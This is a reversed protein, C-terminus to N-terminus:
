PVPRFAGKPVCIEFRAGRGHSGTEHITIGTIGLIERALFLGFGTNKGYGKQFLKSKLDLPIGAGNDEFIIALGSKTTECRIEIATVHEGHRVANDFLNFFVSSLMPDAYIEFLYCTCTVHINKPKTARVIDGLRQWAPAQEGLEQYTRTFEIQRQIMHASNEIKFLFDNIAQPPQSMMALQTYGLLNTLQNAVDHRTISNLLNLKKSTERIALESRKLDSIDRATGVFFLISGTDDAVPSINSVQVRTSGDAHFIRYEIGSGSKKLSEVGTFYSECAALDDPHIFSRYSKGILDSPLYGLLRTVSPSVFTFIGDRDLTYIIDHSNEVLTRYRSESTRLARELSKRGSIDRCLTIIRSEKKEHVVAADVEIPTIRGDPGTYDVEFGHIYGDHVCQRVAAANRERDHEATWELVRRGLIDALGSRGTLRVYEPNADLVRGGEDLIVYGTGTVEVLMRYKEENELLAEEAKKRDSIDLIVGRFGVLNGSRFVPAPYILVPLRSGDSRLATYEHNDVPEGRLINKINQRVREHESPEIYDLANIGAELAQETVRLTTLAHRNAYTIRLQMDMEFIMQPLMEALERYKAESDRIRQESRALEDFQSQLEESSAALQENAARAKEEARRHDTIDVAFGGILPAKNERDIRFKYTEFIREDGNKVKLTEFTKRYGEKLTQLDDAIMKAAAERPFIDRVSKGIWTHAGFSDMMQRNVFLNISEEDKIFATVPLHDMFAAFRGESERLNEEAQKRETIDRVIGLLAPEGLYIIRDIFFEGDRVEGNKTLIRATFVPPVPDGSIRQKGSDQLRARDEPYILDMVGKEMLEDHTYGTLESARHNVFLFRNGRYIYITDHSNEVVVQYKEDGAQLDKEAKKLETIDRISEIAGVTEGQRNYLPSAKGMLIVSKGKPRPLSTEAILTDKEHLIHAYNKAIVDDSEFILDILIKRRTGYFPVAYEFNGKGLMGGAPVGTMEEIARNWAIVTGSRDIAFTADPLFNIIDALRKESDYLAKETRRRGIAQRLKHALEAFQSRPDGGKQLYFDAGNNIAEIVVEERGRGTFLIFPTDPRTKRVAKLLEIGDMEPMQYDSIIADTENEALHSLAGAGSEVTTVRFEGTNELFMRGIELLAPEDDIYLISFM